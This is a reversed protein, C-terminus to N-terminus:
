AYWCELGGGRERWSTWAIVGDFTSSIANQIANPM